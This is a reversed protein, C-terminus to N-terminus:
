ERPARRQRRGTLESRASSQGWRWGAVIAVLVLLAMIVDTALWALEDLSMEVMLSYLSFQASHAFFNLFASDIREAREVFHALTRFQRGVIRGAPMSPNLVHHFRLPDDM